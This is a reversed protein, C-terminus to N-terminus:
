FVGMEGVEQDTKERAGPINPGTGPQEKPESCLCVMSSGCAVPPTPCFSELTCHARLYSLALSEPHIGAAQQLGQIDAACKVSLLVPRARIGWKDCFEGWHAWKEM